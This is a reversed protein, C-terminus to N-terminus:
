HGSIQASSAKLIKSKVDDYGPSKKLQLSHTMGKMGTETSPIIKIGPFQVPFTEKILSIADEKGMTHLTISETIKLFFFTQNFANAVTEAAKVKM